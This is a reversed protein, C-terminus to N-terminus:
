SHRHRIFWAFAGPLTVVANALGFLMSVILATERQVSLASLGMVMAGERVGWGNLSMPLVGLFMSISVVALLEPYRLELGMSSAIWFVGYISACHIAVSIVGAVFVERSLVSRRTAMLLDSVKRLKGQEFLRTLRPWVALVALGSFAGALLALAVYRLPPALREWILPLGAAMIAIMAGLGIMRDLLLSQLAHALRAKRHMFYALRIADVGVGAPLVQGAFLASYTARMYFGVSGGVTAARACSRWRLAALPVTIAIPLLALSLMAHDADLLARRVETWDMTWGLVVILAVSVVIKALTKLRHTGSNVNAMANSM